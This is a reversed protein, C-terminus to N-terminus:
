PEMRPFKPTGFMRLGAVFREAVVRFEEVSRLGRDWVATEFGAADVSWAKAFVGDIREDSFRRRTQPV